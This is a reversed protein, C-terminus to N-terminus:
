RSLKYLFANTGTTGMVCVSLRLTVCVTLNNKSSRVRVINKNEKLNLM